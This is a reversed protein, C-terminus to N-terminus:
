KRDFNNQKSDIISDDAGATEALLFIVWKERMNEGELKDVNLAPKPLPAAVVGVVKRLPGSSITGFEGVGVKDKEEETFHLVSAMIEVVDKKASGRKSHWDLLINKM